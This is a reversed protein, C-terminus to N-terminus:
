TSHFRARQKPENQGVEEPIIARSSGVNNCSIEVRLVKQTWSLSGKRMHQTLGWSALRAPLLVGRHPEVMGEHVM